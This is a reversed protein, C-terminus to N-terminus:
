LVYHGRLLVRVTKHVYPNTNVREECIRSDITNACCVHLRLAGGLLIGICPGCVRECLTEKVRRFQRTHRWVYQFFFKARGFSTRFRKERRESAPVHDHRTFMYLQALHWDRSIMLKPDHGTFMYPRALHQDRSIMFKPDHGTFMYPPALDYDRSIMFKPDDATFM